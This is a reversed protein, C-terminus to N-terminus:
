TKTRTSGASSRRPPSSSRDEARLGRPAADRSVAHLDAHGPRDHRRPEAPPQGQAVQLHLVDGGHRGRRRVSRVHGAAAARRVDGVAPVRARDARQARAHPRARPLQRRHDLRGARPRVRRRRVRVDARGLSDRTSSRRAPRTPPATSGPRSARPWGRRRRCAASAGPLDMTRQSETIAFQGLLFFASRPETAIWNPNGRGANLYAIQAAKASKTAVRALDNKIEFPSLTEYQRLTVADM